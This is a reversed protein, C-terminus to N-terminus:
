DPFAEHWQYVDGAGMTVVIDGSQIHETLYNIVDIKSARYAVDPHQSSMSKVLLESSVAPDKTERASAYIETVVAKNALAFATSFERFLARTRSYTHPQFIVIIRAVPYLMRLAQLTAKVESPHHAYDDYYIVNRAGKRVLEFRRKTGQFTLLGSQVVRWSIGVFRAVIASATANSANHMGPIPLRLRVSKKGRPTLFFEMSGGKFALNQIRFDADAGLGYTVYPRKLKPLLNRIAPSDIGLVLLGHASVNKAFLAYAHEVSKLYQFADPHDFEINTIVAIEPKLFLFKPRRDTPPANMYEDAETIFYEGSGAWGATGLSMIEGCGIAFSPDLDAYVFLHAIMASTTTKGHCGAVAIGRYQRMVVGVMEGQMIIPIGRKKAEISEINKLGRHAGTVVVLDVRKIHERSFGSFVDIAHKALVADTPFSEDTDSGTVSIGRKRAWIALSAMGVGKIGVFHISKIKALNITM